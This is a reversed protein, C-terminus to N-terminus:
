FFLKPFNSDFITIIQVEHEICRKIEAEILEDSINNVKLANGIQPLEKSIEHFGMGEGIYKLSKRLRVDGVGNLKSLKLLTRARASLM